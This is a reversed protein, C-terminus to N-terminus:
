GTSVPRSEEAQLSGPETTLVFVGSQPVAVTAVGAADATITSVPGDLGDGAENWIVLRFPKAAPLGGLAYTVMTASPGNLQAGATDLGILTTEGGPGAYSAVLRSDAGEGDVEVAHWGPRVSATMLHFLNYM